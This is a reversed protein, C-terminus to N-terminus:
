GIEETLFKSEQKTPFINSLFMPLMGVHAEKTVLTGLISKLRSRIDKTASSRPSATLVVLSCAVLINQIKPQIEDSM